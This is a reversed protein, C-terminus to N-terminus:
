LGSSSIRLIGVARGDNRRPTPSVSSSGTGAPDVSTEVAVGEPAAVSTDVVTDERTTAGTSEAVALGALLSVSMGAAFLIRARGVRGLLM